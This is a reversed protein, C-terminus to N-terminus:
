QKLYQLVDERGKETGPSRVEGQRTTRGFLRLVLWERTELIHEEREQKTEELPIM